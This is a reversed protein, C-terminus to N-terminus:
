KQMWKMTESNMVRIIKEAYQPDTAYGAESLGRAFAEPGEAAAQLTEQYRPNQQLFNVYDDVSDGLSQYRRFPERSSEFQGNGFELTNKWIREGSWNSQAKIGFVNFSTGRGDAPVHEGWGTELAAQAIIFEPDIGLAEAGRQAHPWMQEVFEHPEHWNAVQKIQMPARTVPSDFYGQLGADTMTAGDTASKAPSLQAVIMDALGVGGNEALHVSMQKDHMDRYFGMANSDFLPDGFSADRQAKLLMQTFMSEFQSAVQRLTAEDDPSKSAQAKLESLGQLDIYQAGKASIDV